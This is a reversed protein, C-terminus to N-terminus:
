CSRNDLLKGKAVLLLSCILSAQCCDFCVKERNRVKMDILNKYPYALCPVPTVLIPQWQSLLFFLIAEVKVIPNFFFYFIFCKLIKANLELKMRCTETSVVEHGRQNDHLYSGWLVYGADSAPVPAM